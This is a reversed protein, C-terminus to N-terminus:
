KPDVRLNECFSAFTASNLVGLLWAVARRPRPPRPKGTKAPQIRWGSAVEVLFREHVGFGSAPFGGTCNSSPRPTCRHVSLKPLEIVEVASEAQKVGIWQKM